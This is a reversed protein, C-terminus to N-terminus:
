ATAEGKVAAAARGPGQAADEKPWGRRGFVGVDVEAEWNRVTQLYKAGISQVHARQKLSHATSSVIRSLLTPRM